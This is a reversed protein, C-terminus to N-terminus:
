LKRLLAAWNEGPVIHAPPAFGRAGTWAGGVPQGHMALFGFYAFAMAEIAQADLPTAPSALRAEGLDRVQIDPLRKALGRMLTPNRAGGGCVYIERLPLRKGIIWREYARAISEVTLATATAVLRGKNAAGGLAIEQVLQTFPFDDRGTSKPPNKAFYPHTLLKRLARTDVEGQAALKGGRDMKAKGDTVIEAAADIWVNGPGTDFATIRGDPHLYSFNSIGGINHIAIGGKQRSIMQGLLQHFLPVLPAGQGGAAMDGDRFQSVVTLGTARAIRTADGMQLTMGLNQGRPFHAVTQGHNAILDAGGAPILKKLTKGYWDGLDRQLDLWEPLIVRTGPQQIKLVRARLASPYPATKVWKFTWHGPNARTPTFSLCAADLGDCSTGTMVGVIRLENGMM